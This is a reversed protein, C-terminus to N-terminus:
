LHLSVINDVRLGLPVRFSYFAFPIPCRSSSPPPAFFTRSNQAIERLRPSVAIAGASLYWAIIPKSLYRLYVHYMCVRFPPLRGAIKRANENVSGFPERMTRVKRRAKVERERRASKLTVFGVIPRRRFLRAFNNRRGRTTSVRVASELFPSSQLFVCARAVRRMYEPAESRLNAGTSIGTYWTM